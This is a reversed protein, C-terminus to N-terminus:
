VALLVGQEQCCGIGYTDKKPQKPANRSSELHPEHVFHQLLSKSQLGLRRAGPVERRGTRLGDGKLSIPIPPPSTQNWKGKEPVGRGRRTPPSVQARPCPFFCNNPPSSTSWTKSNTGVSVASPSAIRKNKRALLCRGNLLVEISPIQIILVQKPGEGEPGLVKSQVGDSQTFILPRGTSERNSLSTIECPIFPCGKYQSGSSTLGLERM